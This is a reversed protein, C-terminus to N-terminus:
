EVVGLRRVGAALLAAGVLAGARGAPWQVAPPPRGHQHEGPVGRHVAAGPRPGGVTANPTPVLRPRGHNRLRRQDGGGRAPPADLGARHLRLVRAFRFAACWGYCRFPQAAYTRAWSDENPRYDRAMHSRIAIKATWCGAVTSRSTAPFMLARPPSSFSRAM